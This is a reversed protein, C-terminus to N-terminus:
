LDPDSSAEGDPEIEVIMPFWAYCVHHQECDENACRVPVSMDDSDLDGVVVAGGCKGCMLVPLEYFEGAAM